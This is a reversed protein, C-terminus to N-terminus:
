DLWSSPMVPITLHSPHDSDHFISQHALRLEADAWDDKGTNHNRDFNPFDSSSIDLRIRHGPQFSICTPLLNIEMEYVRGHVLLEPRDFSVRYRARIIGYTINQAYGDPHVDILKAIFDTDPADSSIWLKVTPEGVCIMAKELPPTQYVLVDRRHDLLRQDLPEDHGNAGYLTMLPDRPDYTYHDAKEDVPGQLALTGNGRATVAQGDSRLYFRTKTSGSPPWTDADVWRNKGMVFLRVPASDMVGNPEGKLWYDFWKVVLELHSVASETGFDIDGLRSSYNTSHPWPGVILRQNVQAHRTAANQQMKSFMHVTRSLRDYWGTRHFVPVGINSIQRDFQWVDRTHNRLWDHMQGGTAGVAELPLDKWPLFWLWKERNASTHLRDWEEVTAPGSPEALRNQTDPALTGLLWQLARGPRFVGGLEWDTTHPAMGSAWMAVLHPPQTPALAWQTWANYSNGFTGVRGTSWAQSAAWEITDYGDEADRWGPLFLPHFEGASAYRGRIDQVVVAFGAHALGEYEWASSQRRKNYPTRCVLTPFPGGGNPVFVDAALRTGDRM